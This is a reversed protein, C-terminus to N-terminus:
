TRIKSEHTAKPVVPAGNVAPQPLYVDLRQRPDPGYGQDPLLRHTGEAVGANILALPSCAQLLPLLGVSALWRRRHTLLSM